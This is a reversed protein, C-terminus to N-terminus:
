RYICIGIAGLLVVTALGLWLETVLFGKQRAASKQTKM